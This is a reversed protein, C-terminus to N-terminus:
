GSKHWSGDKTSAAAAKTNTIDKISGYDYVQPRHYDHVKPQHYTTKSAQRKLQEM